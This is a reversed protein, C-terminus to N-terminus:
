STQPIDRTRASAALGLATPGSPECIVPPCEAFQTPPVLMEGFIVMVELLRGFDLMEGVAM